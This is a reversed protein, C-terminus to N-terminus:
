QKQARAIRANLDALYVFPDFDASAHLKGSKIFGILAAREAEMAARESTTHGHALEHVLVAALVYRAWTAGARAALFIPRDRLVYITGARGNVVLRFAEIGATRWQSSVLLSPVVQVDPLPPTGPPLLKAVAAITPDCPEAATAVTGLVAALLVASLGLVRRSM